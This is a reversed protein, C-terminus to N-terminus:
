PQPHLMRAHSAISRRRWEAPLVVDDISIPQIRGELLVTNEVTCHHLVRAENGWWVVKQGVLSACSTEWLSQIHTQNDEPLIDWLEGFVAGARQQFGYAIEADEPDLDESFGSLDQEHAAPIWDLIRMQEEPDFEASTESQLEASAESELEEWRCTEPDFSKESAADDIKDPDFENDADGYSTRILQFREPKEWGLREQDEEHEKHARLKAQHCARWTADSQFADIQAVTESKQLAKRALHGRYVKQLLHVHERVLARCAVNCIPRVFEHEEAGVLLNYCTDCVVQQTYQRFEQRPNDMCDLYTGDEFWTRFCGDRTFKYQEDLQNNELENQLQNAARQNQDDVEKFHKDSNRRDHLVCVGWAGCVVVILIIVLFLWSAAYWIVAPWINEVVEVNKWDPYTGNQRVPYTDNSVVPSKEGSTSAQPLQVVSTNVKPKKPKAFNFERFKALVPYDPKAVNYPKDSLLMQPFPMTYTLPPSCLHDTVTTNDHVTTNNHRELRKLENKLSTLETQLDGIQVDKEYLEDPHNDVKSQLQEIKSVQNEMTQEYDRTSASKVWVIGQKLYLISNHLFPVVASKTETYEMPKKDVVLIAMVVLSILFFLIAADLKRNFAARDTSSMVNSRNPM